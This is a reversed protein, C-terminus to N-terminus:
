AAHAGKSPNYERPVWRVDVECTEEEVDDGAIRRWCGHPGPQRITCTPAGGAVDDPGEVVHDGRRDDWSAAVVEQPHVVVSMLTALTDSRRATAGGERTRGATADADGNVVDKVVDIDDEKIADIVEDM